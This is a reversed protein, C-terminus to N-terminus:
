GPEGPLPAPRGPGPRCPRNRRGDSRGAKRRVAAAHRGPGPRACSARMYKMSSGKAPDIGRGLPRDDLDQAVEVLGAAGHDADVVIELGDGIVEVMHQQEVGADDRRPRDGRRQVGLSQVSMHRAAPDRRHRARARARLPSPTVHGGGLDEGRHGQPGAEIGGHHDGSSSTQPYAAPTIPLKMSSRFRAMTLSASLWAVSGPMAM